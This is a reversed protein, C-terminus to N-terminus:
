PEALSRLRRDLLEISLMTEACVRQLAYYWGPWGDLLCRKIFLVYFFMLVPAPVILLRLRDVSGLKSRERSLLHSAELSAYRAQSSFWRSIPKRDDHYIPHILNFTEGDIRVRQTHGEDVYRASSKRYLVARSPYVSARLSRGFIRYVFRAWFGRVNSDPRLAAIESILEDSLVYDADLSLVWESDVHTLGFNCQPAATDFDRRIVVVQPYQGAIELTRDTSGSDIILIRKAWTLKALTRGINAEENFTLIMPTIEHLLRWEGARSWCSFARYLAELRAGMADISFASSALTRAATSMASIGAEDRLLKDVGAAIDQPGTGIVIGAGAKDIEDSIAVGRSVLCPLGAALAEAVAIGFNESYSPLVFASAAALAESKREGEVYGLWNVHNDIALDRALSKLSEVYQPDGSGAINLTVNPNKSLILRLARLLGELNKKPDIRSLFLLNFADDPRRRVIPSKSAAGVDIGLPIVVGKCKLGLAEAEAQEASSTFHVASASEILRREILAFSARKAIPHHRTMGYPALVGLPRLVYPVGARRALFAAAVPAFSFLAHAHVVDFSGINDKLWRGLGISVKFFVTSRPFYWRTAFPIEIPEGCQVPLTRSDGDDNTTVTTVEIGRAALAHEIDVIARSPGGHVASVSPIVHLVKM